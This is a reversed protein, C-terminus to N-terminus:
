TDCLSLMREDQPQWRELSSELVELCVDINSTDQTEVIYASIRILHSVIKVLEPHAERKSLSWVRAYLMTVSLYFLRESAQFVPQLREVNQSSTIWVEQRAHHMMQRAQEIQTQIQEADKICSDKFDVLDLTNSYSNSIRQQLQDVNRLIMGIQHNLRASARESFVFTSVLFSVIVGVIVLGIRLLAQDFYPRLYFPIDPDWDEDHKPDSYECLPELGFVISLFLLGLLGGMLTGVIRQFGKQLFGGFTMELTVLASITAWQKGHAIEDLDPVFNVLLTLFVALTVQCAHRLHKSQNPKRPIQSITLAITEITKDKLLPERDM